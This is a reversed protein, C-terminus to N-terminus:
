PELVPHVPLANARICGSNTNVPYITNMYYTFQRGYWTSHGVCTYHGGYSFGVATRPGSQSYPQHIRYGLGPFFIGNYRHGMPNMKTASEFSAIESTMGNTAARPAVMFGSPSPDYITKTVNTETVSDKVQSSDWNNYFTTTCWDPPAVNTSLVVYFFVSPQRIGEGVSVPGPTTDYPYQPHAYIERDKIHWAEDDNAKDGSMYGGFPDKRGWQYYLAHSRVYLYGKRQTVLVPQTSQGGIALQVARVYVKREPRTYSWGDCWGLCYPAFRFGYFGEGTATLDNDTIWIHWSWVIDNGARLAIVANGQQITEQPVTFCIYANEGTGDISIQSVLGQADEWLLLAELPQGAFRKAIYVSNQAAHTGPAGDNTIPENNHDPWYEFYTSGTQTNQQRHFAAENISGNKLANGYVLPFRYTGPAQVVYSNATTRGVTQGTAANITSLDLNVKPTRSHLAQTHTNPDMVSDNLSIAAMTLREGNLVGGFSSPSQVKLWDPLGDTWPGSESASYQMKFAVPEKQTGKTRISKFSYTKSLNKNKNIEYARFELNSNLPDITYVWGAVVKSIEYCHSRLADFDDTSSYSELEEGSPALIRINLKGKEYVQPPVAILFEQPELPKLAVGDAGLDLTVSQSSDAGGTMNITPDGNNWEMTFPGSLYQGDTTTTVVISGVTRTQAGKLQVSIVACLNKFPLTTTSSQAYMPLHSAIINEESTGGYTQVAPLTMTEISGNKSYISEPYWAKYVGDEKSAGKGSLVAKVGDESLNGATYVKGGVLVRDGEQWLLSRNDGSWPALLTKTVPEGSSISATFVEPVEETETHKVCGGFFLAASLALLTTGFTYRTM